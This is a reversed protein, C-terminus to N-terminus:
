VTRLVAMTGSSAVLTKNNTDTLRLEHNYIGDFDMTDASDLVVQVKTTSIIVNSNDTSKYITRNYRSAIWEAKFGTVDKASGNEDFIYFELVNDDGDFIKVDQNEMAKYDSGKLKKIYSFDGLLM